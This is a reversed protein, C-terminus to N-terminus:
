SLINKIYGTRGCEAANKKNKQVLARLQYVSQHLCIKHTLVNEM